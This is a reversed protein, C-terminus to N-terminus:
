GSFSEGDSFSMGGSSSMGVTLSRGGGKELVSVRGM